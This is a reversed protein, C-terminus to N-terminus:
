CAVIDSDGVVWPRFDSAPYPDWCWFNRHNTSCAYGACGPSAIQDIFTARRVASGSNPLRNDLYMSRLVLWVGDGRSRCACNRHKHKHEFALSKTRVTLNSARTPARIDKEHVDANPMTKSIRREKKCLGGTQTPDCRKMIEMAPSDILM